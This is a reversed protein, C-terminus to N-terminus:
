RAHVWMHDARVASAVYRTFRSVQHAARPFQRTPGPFAAEIERDTVVGIRLDEGAAECNLVCFVVPWAWAPAVNLWRMPLPRM